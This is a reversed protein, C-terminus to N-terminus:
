FKACYFLLNLFKCRQTSSRSRRLGKVKNEKRTKLLKVKEHPPVTGACPVIVPSTLETPFYNLAEFDGMLTLEPGTVLVLKMNM